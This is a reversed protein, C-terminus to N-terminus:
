RAAGQDADGGGRSPDARPEARLMDLLPKVRQIPHAYLRHLVTGRGMVGGATEARRLYETEIGEVEAALREIGPFLKRVRALIASLDAEVSTGLRHVARATREERRRRAAEQREKLVRAPEIEALEAKLRESKALLEGASMDGAASASAPVQILAGHPPAPGAPSQDAKETVQESIDSM